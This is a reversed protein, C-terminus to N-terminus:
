LNNLIRKNKAKKFRNKIVPIQSKIIEKGSGSNSNIETKIDSNNHGENLMKLVSLSTKSIRKMRKGRPIKYASKVTPLVKKIDDITTEPYIPIYITKGGNGDPLVKYYNYNFMKEIEEQNRDNNLVVSLLPVFHPGSLKYKIILKEIKETVKLLNALKDTELLKSRLFEKRLEKVENSFDSQETLMLKINQLAKEAITFHKKIM